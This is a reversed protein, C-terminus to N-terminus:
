YEKVVLRWVQSGELGSPVWKEGERRFIGDGWTGALLTSKAYILQRVTSTPLGSTLDILPRDRRSLARVGKDGWAIQYKEHDNFLPVSLLSGDPKTLLGVVRMDFETDANVSQPCNRPKYWTSGNDTSVFGEADILTRDRALASDSSTWYWDKYAHRILTLSSVYQNKFRGEPNEWTEGGDGSRWLGFATAAYVRRPDSQDVKVDLVESVRWDTVIKWTRGSDLSRHVGNGAAIYLIRGKSSDVADMSFAKLNEPGLHEWTKGLDSSRFLGSHLTSSGVVYKPNGWVVAYITQSLLPSSLLLFSV